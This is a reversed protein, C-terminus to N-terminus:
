YTWYSNEFSHTYPNQHYADLLSSDLRDRIEVNNLVKKKKTEACMNKQPLSNYTKNSILPRSTFRENDIDGMRNTTAHYMGPALPDKPGERAPYRGKSLVERYSRTTANNMMCETYRPKDTTNGANGTHSNNSTFQKNTNKLIIKKIQYAGENTKEANGIYPTDSTYQKNTPKPDFKRIKYGGEVAREPNGVYDSHTTEKNTTKPKDNPDYARPKLNDSTHAGGYIGESLTTEKITTRAKHSPDRVMNNTSSSQFNSAFRSNGVFNEKRTHRLDSVIPVYSNLTAPTINPEPITCTDQRRTRDLKFASKGYDHLANCKNNRVDNINNDQKSQEYTKPYVTDYECNEMPVYNNNTTPTEEPITWKGVVNAGRYGGNSYQCKNSVRVNSRISQQSFGEKPGAPGMARRIDTTTRNSHKLVVQPTQKPKLRDGTTVFYRDPTWIAFRDPKNKRVIGIKPPRSPHSGPIIPRNYTLKPNTKVRLEDVTKPLIYDRTDAQQFGGSPHWTYGKNIGPGVYIKETPAENNRKNSAIFRERQYGSMNSMGYVNTINAEPDFLQPIETKEKSYYEQGTFNEIIHKNIHEDVNQRVHSGFFPTMNNHSFNKPDIPEGTLSVGYWGDSVPKGTPVSNAYDKNNMDYENTSIDTRPTDTFEVPLTNDLYDVKNFYPQPPGPIVLNSNEDEKINKYMEDSMDQEKLRIEQVRNSNYTNTGNPVNKDPVKTTTTDEKKNQSLLYGLGVVASALYLEM